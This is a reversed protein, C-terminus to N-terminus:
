KFRVDFRTVFLVILGVIALVAGPPGDTLQSELGLTKVVWTTGGAVGLYFLLGGGAILLVGLLLATMAYILHYFMAKKALDPNAGRPVVVRRVRIPGKPPEPQQTHTSM